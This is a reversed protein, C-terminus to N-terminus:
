KNYKILVQEVGKLNNSKTKYNSISKLEKNANSVVYTKDINNIIEKESLNGIISIVDNNTIKLKKLLYKIGEYTNLSTIEIFLNNNYKFISSSVELNSIENIINIEKKKIPIEIKYIENEEKYYKLEYSQFIKEIKKITSKKLAKKYISTDKKVDYIYNGNMSIIYDIFPYDKNYYLVEDKDRNTCITFLTNNKRLKDIELMTSMSIADENDILTNYFSTIVMRLM